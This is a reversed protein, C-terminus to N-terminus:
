KNSTHTCMPAHGLSGSLMAESYLSGMQIKVIKCCLEYIRVQMVSDMREVMYKEHEKM